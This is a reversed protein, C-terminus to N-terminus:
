SKRASIEAEVRAGDEQTAAVVFITDDGAITGLVGAPAAADIAAAVSSAAGPETRVVVQNGARAVSRVLSRVMQSLRLDEPVVYAGDSKRLDMEAIDRSVTAQTVDFGREGLADALASQTGVQSARVIERIAEHRDGRAGM